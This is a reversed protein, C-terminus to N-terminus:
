PFQIVEVMCEKEYELRNKDVIREEMCDMIIHDHEMLYKNHFFARRGNDTDKLIRQLDGIDVICINHVINGSCQKGNKKVYERNRWFYNDTKFFKRRMKPNYGGPANSLMYVTAYYHEEPAHCMKFFRYLEKAIVDTLLFNIFQYSLSMYTMSKYLSLSYPVSRGGLRKVTGTETSPVKRSNIVSTGNLGILHSVIEHASSLPLEKGCLNIVYKWKEAEKKERRVKVLDSYCQMQSEMISKEGWNVQIVKSVLHVNDLCKALNEFIAIFDPGSKLDPAICYQNHPRYLLKLLRIVQRPNNHILFSYAIPFSRELDTVYLNGNFYQRVWTCNSTKQLWYYSELSGYLTSSTNSILSRAKKIESANLKLFQKCISETRPQQLRTVVGLKWSKFNSESCAAIHRKKPLLEVLKVSSADGVDYICYLVSVTSLAVLVVVVVVMQQLAYM